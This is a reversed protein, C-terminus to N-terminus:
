VCRSTYLLCTGTLYMFWLPYGFVQFEAVMMTQSSLKAAGAGIFALGVMVSLIWATINRM